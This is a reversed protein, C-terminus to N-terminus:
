FEVGEETRNSVPAAPQPRPQQKQAAIVQLFGNLYEPEEALRAAERFFPESRIRQEDFYLHLGLLFMLDENEPSKELELAFSDLVAEKAVQNEEYLQDIDFNGAPWTPDLTLGHRFVSAARDFRKIKALAFAYRFQAEALQPVAIVAKRYAEIAEAFLQDHFKEDGLAIWEQARALSRPHPTDDEMEPTAEGFSSDPGFRLPDNYGPVANQEPVFPQSPPVPLAQPGYLSQNPLTLPGYISSNGNNYYYYNPTAPPTAYGFNGPSVWLPPLVYTSPRRYRPYYNDHHHHHHDDHDHYDHGGSYSPSRNPVTYNYRPTNYGPKYPVTGSNSPNHKPRLDNYKSSNPNHRDMQSMGPVQSSGVSVCFALILGGWVPLLWFSYSRRIHTM